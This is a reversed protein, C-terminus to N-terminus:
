TMTPATARRTTQIPRSPSPALAPCRGPTRPTPRIPRQRPRRLRSPPTATPEPTATPDPDQALTTVNVYNSRAQEGDKTARVRFAYKTDAELDRVTFSTANANVFRWRFNGPAYKVIDRIGVYQKVDSITSRTWNLSVTTATRGTSQLNTPPNISSQAAAQPAPSNLM